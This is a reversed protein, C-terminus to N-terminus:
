RKSRGTGPGVRPSAQRGGGISGSVPRQPTPLLLRSWEPVLNLLDDVPLEVGLKACRDVVDGAREVPYDPSYELLSESRAERCAYLGCLIGVALEVAAATMGLEGRRILDDLFPQLAEDLIEDAAEGPDVYGRGPHYGARGDLEDIEHFRLTSEVDDAVASRDEDVLRREALAEVQVRLEPRAMLLNDLLEGKEAATLAGLASTSRPVRQRATM